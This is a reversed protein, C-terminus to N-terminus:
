KNKFFFITLTFKGTKLQQLEFKPGSFKFATENPDYVYILFKRYYEDFTAYMILRPVNFFKCILFNTSEQFAM